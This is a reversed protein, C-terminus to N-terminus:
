NKKVSIHHCLAAIYEAKFRKGITTHGGLLNGGHILGPIVHLEAPVGSAYLKRAHEINEELFLDLSGTIIYTPPVGSLDTARGPVIYPSTNPAGIPIDGLHSSWGFTNKDVTWFFEGTNGPDKLCTRDDLMPYILHQFILPSIEKRDRALLALAASLGGGASNGGIALHDKDIFFESGHQHMWLLATYCDELPEM